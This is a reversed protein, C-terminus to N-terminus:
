YYNLWLSRAQQNQDGHLILIVLHALHMRCGLLCHRYEKLANEAYMRSAVTSSQSSHKKRSLDHRAARQKCGTIPNYTAVMSCHWKIVAPEHNLSTACLVSYVRISFFSLLVQLVCVLIGVLRLYINM